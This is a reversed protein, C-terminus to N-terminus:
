LYTYLYITHVFNYMTFLLNNEKVLQFVNKRDELLFVYQILNKLM